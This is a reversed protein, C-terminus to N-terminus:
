WRNGWTDADVGAWYCAYTMAARWSDFVESLWPQAAPYARWAYDTGCREVRWRGSTM